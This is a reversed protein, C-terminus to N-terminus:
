KGWPVLALGKQLGKQRAWQRGYAGRAKAGLGGRLDSKERVTRSERISRATAIIIPFCWCCASITPIRPWCANAVELMKPTNQAQSYSTAAVRASIQTRSDPLSACIAVLLAARKGPERAQFRATTFRKSIYAVGEKNSGADQGKARGLSAGATGEPAAARQDASQIGAAKEGYGVVALFRRKSAARIMNM